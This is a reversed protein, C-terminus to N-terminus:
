LLIIKLHTFLATLGMKLSFTASFHLKHTGHVTCSVWLSIFLLQFTLFIRSSNMFLLRKDGQFAHQLLLFFFFRLFRWVYYVCRTDLHISLLHTKCKLRFYDIVLHFWCFLDFYDYSITSAILVFLKLMYYIQFWVIIIVFIEFYDFPHGFWNSIYIPYPLIFIKYCCHSNTPSNVNYICM